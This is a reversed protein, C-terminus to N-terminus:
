KEALAGIDMCYILSATRWYVSGNGSLTVFYNSNQEIAASVQLLLITDAKRGQVHSYVAIIDVRRTVKEITASIYLAPSFM